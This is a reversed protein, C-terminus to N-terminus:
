RRCGYRASLFDSVARRLNGASEALAEEYPADTPTIAVIERLSLTAAFQAVTQRPPPKVSGAFAVVPRQHMGALRALSGVVKGRPTQDDICGEGTLCLDCCQLRRRLDLEEAVGDFGFTCDARLAMRLGTPLGGAAGGFPSLPVWDAADPLQALLGHWARLNAELQRVQEDTAGKQPGFVVAAGEPGCLPNDVDALITFEVASVTSPPEIATIHALTGGSAPERIPQRDEDLLTWGLAQLCGAGGDVTASGGVTLLVRRAGAEVAAQVLQGTGFSTTRMPDRQHNALLYLGSAEAMEVIGQQRQPDFWWRAERERGLPDLVTAGRQEAGLADALIAGTGEGGDALPCLDIETDPRAIRVGAAIAACVEDASLADKFKDPAILIKM